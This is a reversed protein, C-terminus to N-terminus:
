FDIIKITKKKSSWGKVIMVAAKHKKAFFKIIEQNAKGKEPPAKVNLHIINGEEKTIVTKAANPKVKLEFVKEM